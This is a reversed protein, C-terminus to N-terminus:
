CFLMSLERLHHHTSRPCEDVPRPDRQVWIWASSFPTERLKCVEWFDRAHPVQTCARHQHHRHLQLLETPVSRVKICLPFEFSLRLKEVFIAHDWSQASTSHLRLITYKGRYAIQLNACLKCIRLIHLAIELNRWNRCQTSWLGVTIYTSQIRTFPITNSGAGEGIGNEAFVQITYPVDFMTLFNGTMLNIQNVRPSIDMELTDVTPTNVLRCVCWMM